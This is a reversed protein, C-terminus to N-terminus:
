CNRSFGSMCHLCPCLLLDPRIGKLMGIVLERHVPGYVAPQESPYVVAPGTYKTDKEMGSSPSFRISPSGPVVTNRGCQPAHHVIVQLGRQLRTTGPSLRRLQHHESRGVSNECYPM